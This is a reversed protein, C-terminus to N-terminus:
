IDQLLNEWKTNIEEGRIEIQHVSHNFMIWNEEKMQRYTIKQKQGRSTNPIIIKATIAQHDAISLSDVEYIGEINTLFNDICTSSAVRTIQNIRPQLGFPICIQDLIHRESFININLNGGVVIKQNGFNRLYDGLLNIFEEKSSRPPWYVNIFIIGDM